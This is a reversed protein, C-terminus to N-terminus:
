YIPLPAKISEPCRKEKRSVSFSNRFPIILTVKTASALILSAGSQIVLM